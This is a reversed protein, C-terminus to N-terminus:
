VVFIRADSIDLFYKNATYVWRSGFRLKNIVERDITRYFLADNHSVSIMLRATEAKYGELVDFRDVSYKLMILVVKIAFEYLALFGHRFFYSLFM